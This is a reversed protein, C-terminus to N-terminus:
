GASAESAYDLLEDRLRRLVRSKAMRVADPTVGLDAAIDKPAHGEVAARWFMTWTREEFEPRILLVARHAVGSCDADSDADDPLQDSLNMLRQYADSGGPSTPQREQRRIHDGIKNRTITWLWGRFSDGARERRFDGIRSAVTRFVEQSIDAADHERLRQRRCWRYVLPCYLHAVRRWAEGDNARIRDLLTLSTTGPASGPANFLSSTM